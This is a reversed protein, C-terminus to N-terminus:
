PFEDPHGTLKRFPYGPMISFRLARIIRFPLFLVAGSYRHRKGPQPGTCFLTEGHPVIMVGCLSAM